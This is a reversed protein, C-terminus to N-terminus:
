GNGREIEDLISLVRSTSKNSRHAPAHDHIPDAELEDITDPQLKSALQAMQVRWAEHAQVSVRQQRNM